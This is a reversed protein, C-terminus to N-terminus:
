ELMAALKIVDPPDAIAKGGEELNTSLTIEGWGWSTRWYYAVGGNAAMAILVDPVEQIMDFVKVSGDLLLMYEM